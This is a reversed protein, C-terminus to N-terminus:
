LLIAQLNFYFINQLGPLKRAECGNTVWCKGKHISCSNILSCQLFLKHSYNIYSSNKKFLCCQKTIGRYMYTDTYLFHNRRNFSHRYAKSTSENKCSHLTTTFYKSKITTTKQHCKKTSAKLKNHVM